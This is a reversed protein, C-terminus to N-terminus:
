PMTQLNQLFGQIVQHVTAKRQSWQEVLNHSLIECHTMLWPWIQTLILVGNENICGMVRQQTAPMCLDGEAFCVSRIQEALSQWNSPPYAGLFSNNMIPTLGSEILWKIHQPKIPKICLDSKYQRVIENVIQKAKNPDVYCASMITAATLPLYFSILFIIVLKKFHVIM